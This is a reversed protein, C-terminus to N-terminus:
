WLVKLPPEYSDDFVQGKNAILLDFVIKNKEVNDAMYVNGKSGVIYNGEQDYVDLFRRTSGGLDSFSVLRTKVKYGLARIEKKFDLLSKM